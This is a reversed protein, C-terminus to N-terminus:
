EPQHIGQGIDEVLIGRHLDRAGTTGMHIGAGLGLDLLGQLLRPDLIFAQFQPSVIAEQHSELGRFGLQLGLIYHGQGQAFSDLVAYLRKDKEAQYKMYADITLRFPDEWKSWDHIKIGEFSTYPYAQDEDVYSLEWDLDRTLAAYRQKMSLKRPAAM